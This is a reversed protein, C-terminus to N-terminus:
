FELSVNTITITLYQTGTLSLTYTQIKYSLPKVSADAYQQKEHTM